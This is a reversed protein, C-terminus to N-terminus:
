KREKPMVCFVCWDDSEGNFDHSDPLKYLEGGLLQVCGDKSHYHCVGDPSIKCRWGRHQGCKICRAGESMWEDELEEKTLPEFECNCHHMLEFLAKYAEALTMGAEELSNLLKKAEESINFSM